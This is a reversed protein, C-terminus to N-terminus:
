EYIWAYYYTTTIGFSIVTVVNSTEKPTVVLWPSGSFKLVDLGYFFSTFDFIGLDIERFFNKQINEM